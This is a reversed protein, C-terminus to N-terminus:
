FSAQAGATRDICDSGAAHIGAVAARLAARLQAPACGALVFLFIAFCNKMRSWRSARKGNRTACCFVFPIVCITLIMM